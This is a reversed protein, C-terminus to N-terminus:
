LSFAFIKHGQSRQRPKEKAMQHLRELSFTMFMFEVRDMLGTHQSCITRRLIGLEPHALAFDVREHDEASLQHFDIACLYPKMFPDRVEAVSVYDHAHLPQQGKVLGDEIVRSVNPPLMPELVKTGNRRGNGEPKRNGDCFKKRTTM